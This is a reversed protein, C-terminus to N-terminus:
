HHGGHSSTGHGSPGPAHAPEPAPAAPANQLNGMLMVVPASVVGFALFAYVTPLVAGLDGGTRSGFHWAIAAAVLGCITSLTRTWGTIELRKGCKPCEIDNSRAATEPAPIEAKCHPCTRVAL